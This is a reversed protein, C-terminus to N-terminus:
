MVMNKLLDWFTAKTGMRKKPIYIYPPPPSNALFRDCYSSHCPIYSRDLGFCPIVYGYQNTKTNPVKRSWKPRNEIKECKAGGGAAGSSFKKSGGFTIIKQFIHRYNTYM